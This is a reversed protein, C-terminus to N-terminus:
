EAVKSKSYEVLYDTVDNIRKLNNAERLWNDAPRGLNTVEDITAQLDASSLNEKSLRLEARKVISTFDTKSVEGEVKTVKVLNGLVSEVDLNFGKSNGRTVRKEIKKLEALLKERSVIGNASAERLIEIKGSIEANDVTLSRLFDLERRFRAEDNVSDKLDRASFYIFLNKNKAELKWLRDKIDGIESNFEERSTTNVPEVLPTAVEVAPPQTAIVPTAVAAEVAAKPAETKKVEVKAPPTKKLPYIDYYYSVALGAAVFLILFVLMWKVSSVFTNKTKRKPEEVKVDIVKVEPAGSVDNM